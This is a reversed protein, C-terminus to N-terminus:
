QHSHESFAHHIVSLAQHVIWPALNATAGNMTNETYQVTIAAQYYQGGPRWISIGYVPHGQSNQYAFLAQHGHHRYAITAPHLRENNQRLLAPPPLHPGIDNLFQGAAPFLNSDQNAALPVSPNGIRWSLTTTQNTLTLEEGGDDALGVSGTMSRPALVMVWPEDYGAPIVYDALHKAISSPIAVSEEAPVTPKPHPETTPYTVPLVVTPIESHGPYTPVSGPVVPIAAQPPMMGAVTSRFITLGRHIVWPALDAQNPPVTFVLKAGTWGDHNARHSKPTYQGIGYVDKGNTTQYAFFARQGHDQYDITAPHLLDHTSWSHPVIQNTVKGATSFLDNLAQATLGRSGPDPLDLSISATSNTLSVGVSANDGDIASGTMGRPGLLSIWQDPSVPVLYEALKAATASPIAVWADAAIQAPPPPPTYGYTTPVVTVPIQSLQTSPTVSDTVVPIATAPIVPPSSEAAFVSSSILLSSTLSVLTVSPWVNSRHHQSYKM